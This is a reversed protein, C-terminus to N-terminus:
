RKIGYRSKQKGIINESSIQPCYATEGLAISTIACDFTLGIEAVVVDMLPSYKEGSSLSYRYTKDSVM